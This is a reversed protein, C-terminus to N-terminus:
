ECVVSAGTEREIKGCLFFGVIEKAAAVLGLFRYFLHLFLKTGVPRAINENEKTRGSSALARV